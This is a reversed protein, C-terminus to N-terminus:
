GRLLPLQSSQWEMIGGGLRYVRAFGKQRLNRAVAGSQHGMKCVVVVPKDRYRELEAVRESLKAFPMHISDVIHGARYEAGDRLDLVVAEERNVLATLQAPSLTPIGKRTEHMVLLVIIVGAAGFLYWKAAVFQFFLEM